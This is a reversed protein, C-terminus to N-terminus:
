GPCHPLAYSAVKGIRRNLETELSISSPITSSLYAFEHVAELEYAHTGISPAPVDVDQGMVQTKHLSVTLEFDECAVTFSQM